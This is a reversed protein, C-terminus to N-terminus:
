IFIDKKQKMQDVATKRIGLFTDSEKPTTFVKLPYDHNDANKLM